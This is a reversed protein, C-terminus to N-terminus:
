LEVDGPMNLSAEGGLLDGILHHRCL